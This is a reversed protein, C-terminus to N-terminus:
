AKSVTTGAAAPSTEPVNGKIGAKQKPGKTGRAKRTAESKDQALAKVKVKPEVVKRPPYGFDGLANGASQSDGFQSVVYSKLMRLIPNLNARTTRELDVEALYASKATDAATMRDLEEQIRRELDQSTYSAGALKLSANPYWKTIGSIIKQLQAQRSNRNRNMTKELCEKGQNL